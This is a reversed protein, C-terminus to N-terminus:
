SCANAKAHPFQKEGIYFALFGWRDVTSCVNCLFIFEVFLAERNKNSAKNWM